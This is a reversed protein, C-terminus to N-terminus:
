DDIVPVGLTRAAACLRIDLSALPLNRRRALELYSADYPTAGLRDSLLLTAGWAYRHTDLDTEINLADLEAM